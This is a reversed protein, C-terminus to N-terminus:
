CVRFPFIFYFFVLIFSLPLRLQVTRSLFKNTYVGSMFSCIKYVTYPINLSFPISDNRLHTEELLTPLFESIDTFTKHSLIASPRIQSLTASSCNPVFLLLPITISMVTLYM